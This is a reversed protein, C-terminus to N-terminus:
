RSRSLPRRSRRCRRRSRDRAPRHQQRHEAGHDPEGEAGRQREDDDRSNPAIRGSGISGACGDRRARAPTGKHGASRAPMRSRAARGRGRCAPTPATERRSRRGVPAPRARWIEDSCPAPSRPQQDRERDSQGVVALDRRDEDARQPRRRRSAAGAQPPNIIHPARRQRAGRSGRHQPERDGVDVPGARQRRRDHQREAETQRQQDGHRLDVAIQAPLEIRPAARCPATM